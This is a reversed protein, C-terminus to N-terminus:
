TYMNPFYIKKKNNNHFNDNNIIIIIVIILLLLLIVIILIYNRARFNIEGLASPLKASLAQFFPAGLTFKHSNM